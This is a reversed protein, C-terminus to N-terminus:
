VLVARFAKQIGKEGSPQGQPSSQAYAPGYGSQGNKEWRRAYVETRGRFLSMYLELQQENISIMPNAM